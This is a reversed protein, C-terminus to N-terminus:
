RPSLYESAPPYARLIARRSVELFRNRDSEFKELVSKYLAASRGNTAESLALFAARLEGFTKVVRPDKLDLHRNKAHGLDVDLHMENLTAELLLRQFEKSQQADLDQRWQTLIRHAEGMLRNAVVGMRSTAETFLAVGKVDSFQEGIQRMTLWGLGERVSGLRDKM